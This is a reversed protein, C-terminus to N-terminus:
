SVLSPMFYLGKRSSQNFLFTYRTPFKVFSNCLASFFPEDGHEPELRVAEAAQACLRDNDTERHLRRDRSKCRHRKILAFAAGEPEINEILLLGPQGVPDVGVTQPM